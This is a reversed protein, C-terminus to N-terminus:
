LLAGNGFPVFLYTIYTLLQRRRADSHNNAPLPMNLEDTESLCDGVDSAKDSEYKWGAPLGVNNEEILFNHLIVTAEIYQCIKDLSGPDETIM